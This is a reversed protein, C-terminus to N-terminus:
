NHAGSLWWPASVEEDKVLRAGQDRAWGRVGVGRHPCINHGPAGGTREAVCCREGKGLDTEM